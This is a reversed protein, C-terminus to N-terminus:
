SKYLIIFNEGTLEHFTNRIIGLKSNANAVNKSIHDTFQFEDNVIIGLDKM